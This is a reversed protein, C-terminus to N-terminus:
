LQNKMVQLQLTGEGITMNPQQTNRKLYILTLNGRVFAIFISYQQNRESIFTHYILYLTPFQSDLFVPHEEDFGVGRAM